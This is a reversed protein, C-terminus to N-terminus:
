VKGNVASRLHKLIVDENTIMLPPIEDQHALVCDKWRDPSIEKQKGRCEDPYKSLLFIASKFLKERNTAHHEALHNIKKIEGIIDHRHVQSQNGIMPLDCYDGNCKLLERIQKATIWLDNETVTVEPYGDNEEDDSIADDPPLPVLVLTPTKDDTRCLGMSGWMLASSGHNLIGTITTTQPVWLGYARGRHSQASFIGQQHAPWDYFRPHFVVEGDGHETLRDISYTSYDSFIKAAALVHDSYPLSDYWNSLEDAKGEVFLVSSLGDLMVCVTIKGSVALSLLDETKINILEAARKIRCFSFPIKITEPM